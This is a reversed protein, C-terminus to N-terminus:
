DGVPYFLKYHDRVDKYNPFQYRDTIEEINDPAKFDPKINRDAPEMSINKAPHM